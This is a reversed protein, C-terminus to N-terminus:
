QTQEKIEPTLYHYIIHVTFDNGKDLFMPKPTISLSLSCNISSRAMDKVQEMVTEKDNVKSIFDDPKDKEVSLEVGDYGAASQSFGMEDISASVEVRDSWNWPLIFGHFNLNDSWDVKIEVKYICADNKVDIEYNNHWGDKGVYGSDVIEDSYERWSVMYSTEKVEESAVYNKEHYVIGIVSIILIVVGAMIVLRDQRDM